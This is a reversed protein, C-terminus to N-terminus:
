ATSKIDSHCRFIDAYPNFRPNYIFGLLVLRFDSASFWYTFILKLSHVYKFLIVNVWVIKSHTLDKLCRDSVFLPTIVFAFDLILWYTYMWFLRCHYVQVNYLQIWLVDSKSEYYPLLMHKGPKMIRFTM